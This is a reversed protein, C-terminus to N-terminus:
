VREDSQGRRRHRGFAQLHRGAHAEDDLAVRDLCGLEDGRDVLDRAAAKQEADAAAPVLVLDLAVAGLEFATELFHAILSPDASRQEGTEARPACRRAVKGPTKVISRSKPPLAARSRSM